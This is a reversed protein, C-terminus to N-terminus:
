RSSVFRALEGFGRPLRVRRGELAGRGELTRRVVAILGGIVGIIVGLWVLMVGPKLSLTIVAKAPDVPLNLGEVRILVRREMPDFAALTAKHGGPLEAPMDVIGGVPDSPSTVLRIRPTLEVSQGEYTVRLKAGVEASGTTHADSVDFGLFTFEYPGVTGSQGISMDAMNRDYPPQYESPSIYVDHFLESRIAPTAMTAGMMQNFYLQPTARFTENGRTVTLDLIGRGEPTQRWGNFTVTYGFASVSEGEPVLLRVEETAYITSAVAGVLLVMLGVHALYGGIRLWGSRLTRVIMLVNTGFAFACLSVYALPLPDRVGLVLGVCAAVVAGLAPFRLARLLSRKNTDRWGLLPGIILLIVLILGLPPVTTSYFDGVLGFRGDTFPQADPNFTTGDDIKFSGAFLSQLRHGVGPIASILPMSTGLGIVTAIVLLAIIGLVFFSDRSLLKDSLPKSPIDRWRWALMGFGGFALLVLSAFLVTKLGEEVFSHVSFSSLVGSRTLFTSYFVLVYTAIALAFTTRRLGHGTRQVLMAHLLATSTLWPVLSSNEVPDWGWYGGWGLTEYAWYGGLLLALGLSVWAALTWPLADHVWGDYDRRWLGGIAFAFPVAMLAFGIFLVPPHILMWMNQLTPNLGKGDSPTVAVGNQMFPVFPNRILIYFLLAAQIAMFISLVYPEAHRTRRVLFQAAIVGWLAWIVFSGPQGAWVAAVRFAPDLDRSTYNYVYDIDYRQAIFLYNLLAVIALVAVLTMRVGVRGFALGVLHGRPTLAYGATALLASALGAIILTTGLLYM